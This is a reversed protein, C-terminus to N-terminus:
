ARTPEVGAAGRGVLELLQDAAESGGEQFSSGLYYSPSRDTMTARRVVILGDIARSNATGAGCVVRIRLRCGRPLYVGSQLGLGGVSCDVVTLALAGEANRAGAGLRVQGQSQEVVWVEAPLACRLREHSRVSLDAQGGAM